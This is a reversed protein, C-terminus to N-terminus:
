FWKPKIPKNHVQPKDSVMIDLDGVPKKEDMYQGFEEQHPEAQIEEEESLGKKSKLTYQGVLKLIAPLVFFLILLIFISIFSNDKM